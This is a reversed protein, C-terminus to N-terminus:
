DIVYRLGGFFMRGFIPGYIMSADFYPGFPDGSAVIPNSQRFNTLNEGGVYVELRKGFVRTIQTNAMAFAPSSQRIQYENPNLITRPMRQKGILQFTFDIKWQAEKSTKKTQYALNLFGRHKAILPVSRRESQYDTTVELWRYALRVDFRKALEYNTEVQFSNSISEGNLNYFSVEQPNEDLDVVVQNQFDTRYFDASISGERYNLRFKHTINLGYNYAVEPQLNGYTNSASAANINPFNWVRSSAMLGVNEAFINSTRQGRGAALKISTNETLSYRAHLRPTFFTGFMNHFDARFGAITSWNGKNLTMETFVGPVIEERKFNQNIWTENYYDYLFSAGNKWDLGEKLEVQTILNSYYTTNKGSYNNFGFRSNTKQNAFFNQWGISNHDDEFIYGLKWFADVRQNDITVGYGNVPAITANEVFNSQGAQHDQIIFGVGFETRWHDEDIFRWQNLFGYDNELPMDLFSDNNRDSKLNIRKGHVLLNTRWRSGIKQQYIANLETRGGQNVYTNFHFTESDFPEKVDVNIQGTISEYGNGVSGVGKAIQISGVWPGPIYTLGYITSLGRLSPINDQMVQTYKGSLGLMKIQRTGTVADTFSADISANTEFSESLNCCAAKRLEQEGVTQINLPALLNVESTKRRYVIEVEKLQEGKNLKVLLPPKVNSIDITDNNFGVVSFVLLKTSKVKELTFKGDFDTQTGQNTGLWFVNVLPIPGVEEKENETYVVGTIQGKSIFSCLVGLFIFIYKIKM